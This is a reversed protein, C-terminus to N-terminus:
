LTRQFYIQVVDNKSNIKSDVGLIKILFIKNFVNHPVVVEFFNKFGEDPNKASFYILAKRKRVFRYHFVFIV